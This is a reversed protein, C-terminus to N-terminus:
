GALIRQLKRLNEPDMADCSVHFANSQEVAHRLSRKTSDVWSAFADVDAHLFDFIDEKLGYVNLALSFQEMYELLVGREMERVDCETNGRYDVLCINKLAAVESGRWGLDRLPDAIYEGAKIGKRLGRARIMPGFMADDRVRMVAPVATILGNGILSHTNSLFQAGHQCLQTLLVTKGGGGRGVLLTGAGEVAVAAAKLHLLGNAMSHLTLLLKALYPWVIPEFQTGLIWYCTGRTVLFAPPGFHDTIYYGAAFRRARYHRDQERLIAEHSWPGDAALNCFTLTYDAPLREGPAAAPFYRLGVFQEENSRIDIRLPGLCVRGESRVTFNADTVVDPLEEAPM